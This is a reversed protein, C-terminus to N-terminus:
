PPRQSRTCPAPVNRSGHAPMLTHRRRRGSHFPGGQDGTPAGQPPVGASDPHLEPTSPYPRAAWKAAPEQRPSPPGARSPVPARATDRPRPQTQISASSSGPYRPYRDRWPLTSPNFDGPPSPTESCTWYHAPAEVNQAAQDVAAKKYAGPQGPPVPPQHAQEVVPRLWRPVPIQKWSNWAAM